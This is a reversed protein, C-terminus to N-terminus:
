YRKEVIGFVGVDGTLDIGLDMNISLYTQLVM